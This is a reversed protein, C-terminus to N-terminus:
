KQRRQTKLVKKPKVKAPVRKPVRFVARAKDTAAELQAQSPPNQPGKLPEDSRVMQVVNGVARGVGRVVNGGPIFGLFPDITRAVQKIVDWLKGFDNYEVPYADKLQRSIAFYSNYAVEDSLPCMRQFPAYGSDPTVQCEFGARLCLTIKANPNLGKLSIVGIYASAPVLHQTGQIQGTAGTSWAPVCDMYPWVSAPATTPLGAQWTSASVTVDTEDRWVAHNTDLRLPMYCGDRAEGVYANPAKMLNAYSPVDETHFRRVAFPNMYIGGATVAGTLDIKRPAAVYQCAAITGEDYMKSANLYVSLGEYCVRWRQFDALWAATAASTTAGFTTNTVNTSTITGGSSLYTQVLVPSAPDSMLYIDADWSAAYAPSFNVQQQCNMLVSSMCSWDPIGVVDTVPDSPHLAKVCWAKGQETAGLSSGSAEIVERLKNTQAAAIYAPNIALVEPPTRLDTKQAPSGGKASILLPLREL